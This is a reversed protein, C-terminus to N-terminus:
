NIQAYEVRATKIETTTLTIQIRKIFYDHKDIRVKESWDFGRIDSATLRTPYIVTRTKLLFQHWNKHWVNYLGEPVNWLLSLNADALQNEDSDYVHNSALPYQSAAMFKSQLGRWFLFTTEAIKSSGYIPSVVEDFYFPTLYAGFSSIEPTWNTYHFLTKADAKFSDAGDGWCRIDKRILIHSTFNWRYYTNTSRVYYVDRVYYTIDDNTAPIDATTDVEGKYKYRPYDLERFTGDQLYWDYIEENAYCFKTPPNALRPEKVYTKEVKGTWNKSTVKKLIDNYPIIAVKKHQPDILIAWAFTNSVQKLFTSIETDPVHNKPNIFTVFELHDPHPTSPAGVKAIDLTYNSFLILNALEERFEHFDFVGTLRFGHEEFIQNLIYKVKFSPALTSHQQYTFVKNKFFSGADYHNVLEYNDDYEEETEWFDLRFSPFVYDYDDSNAVVTNAHDIVDAQDPGIDRIGGLVLESLLKTKLVSLNGALGGTFQLQCDDESNAENIKATGVFLLENDYYINCPENKIMDDPNDLLEPRNLKRRNSDSLPVTFSYAKTGPIIDPDRDGFYLPSLMDFQINTNPKLDLFENNIEVGIRM